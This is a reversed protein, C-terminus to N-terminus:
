ECDRDIAELGGRSGGCDSVGSETARPPGGRDRSTACVGALIDRWCSLLALPGARRYQYTPHRAMNVPIGSSQTIPRVNSSHECCSSLLHESLSPQTNRPPLSAIAPRPADQLILESICDSCFCIICTGIIDSLLSTPCPTQCVM